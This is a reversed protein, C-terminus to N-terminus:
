AMHPHDRKAVALGIADRVTSSAKTTVQAKLAGITATNPLNEILGVLSQFGKAHTERENDAQQHSSPSDPTIARDCSASCADSTLVIM